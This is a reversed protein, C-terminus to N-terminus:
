KLTFGGAIGVEPVLLKLGGYVFPTCPLASDWCLGDQPQYFVQDNKFQEASAKVLPLHQPVSLTLSRVGIFYLFIAPICVSVIVVSSGTLSPFRRGSLLSLSSLHKLLLWGGVTIFLIPISGLFRFDPATFFWFIMSVILPLYLTHQVLMGCVQRQRLLLTVNCALM